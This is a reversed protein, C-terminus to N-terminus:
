GVLVSREAFLLINSTFRVRVLAPSPDNATAAADRHFLKGVTIFVQTLRELKLRRSFVCKKRIAYYHLEFM